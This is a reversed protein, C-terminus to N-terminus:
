AGNLVSYESSVLTNVNNLFIELPLIPEINGNGYKFYKQRQRHDFVRAWRPVNRRFVMVVDLLLMGASKSPFTPTCSHNSGRTVLAAALDSGPRLRPRAQASM